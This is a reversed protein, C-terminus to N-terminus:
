GAYSNGISAQYLLACLLQLKPDFAMLCGQGDSHNASARDVKISRRM